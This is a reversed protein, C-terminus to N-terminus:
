ENFAGGQLQQKWFTNFLTPPPYVSLHLVTVMLFEDTCVEFELSKKIRQMFGHVCQPQKNGVM